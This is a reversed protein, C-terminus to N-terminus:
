HPKSGSPGAESSHPPSPPKRPPSGDSSSGRRPAKPSAVEKGKGGPSHPSGTSSSAPSSGPSHIQLPRGPSTPTNRPPPRWLDHKSLGTIEMIQNQGLQHFGGPGLPVKALTRLYKHRSMTGPSSPLRPPSSGQSGSSSSTGSGPKKRRDASGFSTGSSVSSQLSNGPSLPRGFPHDLRGGASHPSPGVSHPSSAASLTSAGASYFAGVSHTSSGASHSASGATHFSDLSDVSHAHSGAGSRSGAFHSFSGPSPSTPGQLAASHETPHVPSAMRHTPSTVAPSKTKPKGCANGFCKSVKGGRPVLGSLRKSHTSATYQALHTLTVVSEPRPTSRWRCEGWDGKVYHGVPQAQLVAACSCLVSLFAWLPLIQWEMSYLHVPRSDNLFDLLPLLTSTQLSNSIARKQTVERLPLRARRCLARVYM